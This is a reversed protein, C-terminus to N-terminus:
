ISAHSHVHLTCPWCDHLRESPCSRIEGDFRRWSGLPVSVVASVKILSTILAFASTPHLASAYQATRLM